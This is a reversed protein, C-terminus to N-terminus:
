PRSVEEVQREHRLAGVLDEADGAICELVDDMSLVGVLEGHGDVIPLRRVGAARMKRLAAEMADSSRATVPNMTMIDGVRVARPDLDRAVVSVVIDRDTLVGVPRLFGEAPDPAVVVLYGVHKERMVDAAHTVEDTRRITFVLRQCLTGVRM